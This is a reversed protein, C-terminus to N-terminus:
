FVALVFLVSLCLSLTALYYYSREILCLKAPDVKLSLVVWLRITSAFRQSDVLFVVGVIPALLGIGPLHSVKPPGSSKEVEAYHTGPLENSPDHTLAHLVSCLMALRSLVCRIVWM